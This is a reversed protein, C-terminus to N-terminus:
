KNKDTIEQNLDLFLEEVLGYHHDQQVPELLVEVKKNGHNEVAVELKTEKKLKISTGQRKNALHAKITLYFVHNNPEIGFINMRDLTITEGSKTGDIKYVDLKM